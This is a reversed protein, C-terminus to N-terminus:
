MTITSMRLHPKPHVYSVEPHNATARSKRGIGEGFYVGKTITRVIKVSQMGKRRGSGIAQRRGSIGMVGHM